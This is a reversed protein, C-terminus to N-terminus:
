DGWTGLYLLGKTVKWKSRPLSAVQDVGVHLNLYLLREIWGLNLSLYLLRETM